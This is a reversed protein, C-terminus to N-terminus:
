GPDRATSRKVHDIFARLKPLVQRRDPYYLFVGPVSPAFSDLVSVLRGSELAAAAIPRPVQALGIGELAAALLTSFDSAILPGAVAFEVPRDDVVFSWPALAGNSRRWRICAHYRLDDPREPPERGALHGPSAVVAM